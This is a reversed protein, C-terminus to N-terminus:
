MCMCLQGTQKPSKKLDVEKVPVDRTETNDDIAARTASSPSQPSTTALEPIRDEFKSEGDKSSRARDKEEKKLVSAVLELKRPSLPLLPQSQSSPPLLPPLAPILPPPPQKRQSEEIPATPTPRKTTFHILPNALPTIVVSESVKRSRYDKLSIRKPAAKKSQAQSKQVPSRLSTNQCSDVPPNLEPAPINSDPLIDSVQADAPRDISISSRQATPEPSDSEQKEVIALPPASALFTNEPREPVGFTTNVAVPKQSANSVSPKPYDPIIQEASKAASINSTRPVSSISAPAPGPQEMKKDVVSAYSNTTPDPASSLSPIPSVKSRRRQKGDTVQDAQDDENESPSLSRIILRMKSSSENAVPDISNDRADDDSDLDSLSSTKNSNGKPYGVSLPKLKDVTRFEPKNPRTMGSAPLGSSREAQISSPKKGIAVRPPPKLINKSRIRKRNNLYRPTHSSLMEEDSSGLITTSADSDLLQEESGESPQSLASEDTVSV